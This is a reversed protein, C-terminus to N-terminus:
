FEMRSCIAAFGHHYRWGANWCPAFFERRRTRSLATLPHDHRFLTDANESTAAVDGAQQVDALAAVTVQPAASARVAGWLRLRTSHGANPGAIMGHEFATSSLLLRIWFPSANPRSQLPATTLGSRMRAGLDQGASQMASTPSQHHPAVGGDVSVSSRSTLIKSSAILEALVCPFSQRLARAAPLTGGRGCLAWGPEFCDRTMAMSCDGAPVVIAAIIFAVPQCCCETRPNRAPTTRLRSLSFSPEFFTSPM